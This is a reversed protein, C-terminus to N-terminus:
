AAADIGQNLSLPVDWEPIRFECLEELNTRCINIIEHVKSHESPSKLQFVKMPWQVSKGNMIDNFYKCSESPPAQWVEIIALMLGLLIDNPSVCFM